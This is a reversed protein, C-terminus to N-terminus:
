GDTDGLGLSTGLVNGLSCGISGGERAGERVSDKLGLTEGTGVNELVGDNCGVFMGVTGGDACGM